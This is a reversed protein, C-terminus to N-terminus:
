PQDGGARPARSRRAGPRTLARARPVRCRRLLSGRARGGVPRRALSLGAADASALSQLDDVMRGLRLVEDHLSTLAEPGADRVGDVLAETEGRLVALPTRLEHAVDAVMAQRLQEQHEIAVSMADFATGLEGLEGPGGGGTALRVSRDGAGVARAAASLRRLPRVLRGTVVVSAVLAVLVGLGGALAASRALASRLRQEAPSLGQDPFDLHVEGVVRGGSVVARTETRAGTGGPAAGSHFLVIGAPDDVVIRAGSLDALAELPALDAGAWGHSARYASHAVSLAASSTEGLQSRRLAAFSSGEGALTLAAFLALVVLAVAVFAGALRTGLPGLGRM